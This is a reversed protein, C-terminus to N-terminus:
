HSQEFALKRNSMCPCLRRFTRAKLPHVLSKRRSCRWVSISRSDQCRILLGCLLQDCSSRLTERKSVYHLQFLPRPPAPLSHLHFPHPPMLFVFPARKRCSTGSHVGLGRRYDGSGKGTCRAWPSVICSHAKALAMRGSSHMAGAQLWPARASVIHTHATECSAPKKSVHEEMCLEGHLLRLSSDVLLEKGGVALSVSSLHVDRVRSSM